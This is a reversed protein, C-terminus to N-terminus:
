AVLKMIFDQCEPTLDGHYIENVAKMLQEERQRVIQSLEVRNPFSRQFKKIDFCDKGDDNYEPSPLPPLQFFDGVFNSAHGRFLCWHRPNQM